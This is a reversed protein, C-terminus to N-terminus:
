RNSRGLIKTNIITDMEDCVCLTVVEYSWSFRAFLFWLFNLSNILPGLWKNQIKIMIYAALRMVLANPYGVPILMNISLHDCIQIWQVYGLRKLTSNTLQNMLLLM